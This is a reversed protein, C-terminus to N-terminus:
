CLCQRSRRPTTHMVWGCRVACVSRMAACFFLTNHVVTTSHCVIMCGQICVGQWLNYAYLRGNGAQRHCHHCHRACSISPV